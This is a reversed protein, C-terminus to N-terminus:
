PRTATARYKSPTMGFRVRFARGFHTASKFGYADAIEGITKGAHSVETLAAACAELRRRQIYREVTESGDVFLHHLYRPKIGCAEAVRSPTLDPEGLHSEIYSHVRARHTASIAARPPLKPTDAYACPLMTLTSHLANEAAVSDLDRRLRNWYSRLYESLLGGVGTRGSMRIAVMAEPENLYRTVIRLPLAFVLARNPEGFILDYPRTTDCIAFDGPQLRASRDNQKVVCSGSLQMQLFFLADRTQAVHSPLHRALQPDTYVEAIGIEGVKTNLATANFRWPDVPESLIPSGRSNVFDNWYEIKSRPSLKLTSFTEFREANM